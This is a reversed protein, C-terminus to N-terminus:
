ETNLKKILEEMLQNLKEIEPNISPSEKKSKRQQWVTYIWPLTFSSGLIALIMQAITLQLSTLGLVNVVSITVESVFNESQIIVRHTGLLKPVIIWTLTGRGDSKVTASQANFPSIEVTPSAAEFLETGQSPQVVFPRGAIQVDFRPAILSGRIVCNEEGQFVLSITAQENEGIVDPVSITPVDEVCPEEEVSATVMSDIAFYSIMSNSTRVMLLIVVTLSLLLIGALALVKIRM